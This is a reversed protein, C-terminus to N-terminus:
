SLQTRRAVDNTSRGGCRPSDECDPDRQPGPRPTSRPEWAPARAALTMRAGRAFPLAWGQGRPHPAPWRTPAQRCPDLTEGKGSPGKPGPPWLRPLQPRHRAESVRVVDSASSSACPMPPRSADHTSCSTWPSAGQTLTTAAGSSSVTWCHSRVAAGALAERCGHGRRHRHRAPRHGPSQRSPGATPCCRGPHPRLGLHAVHAVVDGAGERSIDGSGRILHGAWMRNDVPPRARDLTPATMGAIAVCGPSEGVRVTRAASGQSAHRQPRPGGHLARGVDGDPAPGQGRDEPALRPGAVRQGTPKARGRGIAVGVPVGRSSGASPPPRCGTRSTERPSSIHVPGRIQPQPWM